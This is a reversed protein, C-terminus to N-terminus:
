DLENSFIITDNKNFRIDRMGMGKFYDNEFDKCVYWEYPNYSTLNINGMDPLDSEDVVWHYDNTLKEAEDESITFYGHHVTDGGPSVQTTGLINWCYYCSECEGGTVSNFNKSIWSIDNSYEHEYHLPKYTVLAAIVLVIIAIFIIVGLILSIIKKGVLGFM